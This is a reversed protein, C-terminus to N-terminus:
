KILGKDQMESIQPELKKYEADPLNKVWKRFADKNTPIGSHSTLSPTSTDVSDIGLERRAKAVEDKITKQVKEDSAKKDALLKTMTKEVVREYAAIYNGDKVDLDDETMGATTILKRSIDKFRRDFEDQQKRTMDDYNAKQNIHEKAQYQALKLKTQLDPDDGVVSQYQRTLLETAEQARRNAKDIEVLHRDKQSQLERKLPETYKPLETELLQKLTQKLIEEQSPQKAPEEAKPATETSVVEPQVTKIEDAM